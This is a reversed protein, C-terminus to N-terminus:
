KKPINYVGRMYLDFIILIRFASNAQYQNEIFVFM